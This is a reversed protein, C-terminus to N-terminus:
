HPSITTGGLKIPYDFFKRLYYIRSKRPRVLMVLDDSAPAAAGVVTVTPAHEAVEEASMEDQEDVVKLPGMGRLPPEEEVAVPVAVTRQQGQYSIKADGDGSEVPMLDMWWQM